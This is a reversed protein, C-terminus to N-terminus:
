TKYNLENISSIYDNCAENSSLKETMQLMKKKWTAQMVM